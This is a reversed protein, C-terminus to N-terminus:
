EVASQCGIGGAYKDRLKSQKGRVALYGEGGLGIPFQNVQGGCSSEACAEVCAYALLIHQEKGATQGFGEALGIGEAGQGYVGACFAIQALHLDRSQRGVQRTGEM